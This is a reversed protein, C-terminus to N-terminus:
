FPSLHMLRWFHQVFVNCSVRKTLSLMYSSSICVKRLCFLGATVVNVTLMLLVFIVFLCFVNGFGHAKSSSPHLRMAVQTNCAKPRAYLHACHYKSGRASWCFCFTLSCLFVTLFSFTFYYSYTIRVIAFFM